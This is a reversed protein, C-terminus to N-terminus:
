LGRQGGGIGAGGVAEAIRIFRYSGRLGKEEGSRRRQREVVGEAVGRNRGTTWVKYRM